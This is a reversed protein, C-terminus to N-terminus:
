RWICDGQLVGNKYIKISSVIDNFHYKELNVISSNTRYSRGQFHSAEFIEIIWGQGSPVFISSIKDNWGVNNFNFETCGISVQAGRPDNRNFAAHEYIIPSNYTTM